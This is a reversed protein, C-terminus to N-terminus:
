QPYDGEAYQYPENAPPQKNKDETPKPPKRLMLYAGVCIFIIGIVILVFMAVKNWDTEKPEEKAEEKKPTPRPQVPPPQTVAPPPTVPPPQTEPIDLAAEVIEADDVSEEVIKDIVPEEPTSFEKKFAKSEPNKMCWQSEHSAKGRPNKCVKDCFQCTRKKVESM